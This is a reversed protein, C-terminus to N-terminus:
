KDKLYDTTPTVSSVGVTAGGLLVFESLGVDSNPNGWDYTYGLRTWPYPNDGSYVMDKRQNFWQEYTYVKDANATNDWETITTASFSLFKGTATPFDVDAEHDVIEPDPSPRFLDSPSAWIEVFKTKGSNPPLGLLQEIRLQTAGSNKEVFDKVEPALTVWVNADAPLKYEKGVSKDYFDKNIWTVVKVRRVGFAQQWELGKEWSVVAKLNRCVEEPEVTKADECAKLYTAKPNSDIKSQTRTKGCGSLLILAAILAIIMATSIRRIRNDSNLM